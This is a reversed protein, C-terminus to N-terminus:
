KCPGSVVKIKLAKQPHPYYAMCVACNHVSSDLTFYFEDGANIGEPFTCPSGLAFVNSYVKGTTEDAWATVLKSTDLRGELLKITYNSCMGKIELRAKYCTSSPTYAPSKACKKQVISLLSISAILIIKM